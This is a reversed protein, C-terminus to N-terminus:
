YQFIFRDRVDNYVRGTMKDVSWLLVGKIINPLERHESRFLTADQSLHLSSLIESSHNLILVVSTLSSRTRPLDETGKVDLSDQFVLLVLLDYIERTLPRGTTNAARGSRLSM